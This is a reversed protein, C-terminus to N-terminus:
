LWCHGVDHKRGSNELRGARDAAVETISYDLIRRLHGDAAGRRLLKLLTGLDDRGHAVVEWGRSGVGGIHRDLTDRLTWSAGVGLGVALRYPALAARAGLEVLHVIDALALGLLKWEFERSRDLPM